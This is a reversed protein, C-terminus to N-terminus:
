DARCKSIGARMSWSPWELRLRGASASMTMKTSSLRALVLVLHPCTLTGAGASMEGRPCACLNDRRVNRRAALPNEPRVPHQCTSPPEDQVLVSSKASARTATSM